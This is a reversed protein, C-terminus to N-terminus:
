KKEDLVSKLTQPQEIMHESQSQNEQKTSNCAALALLCPLLLNIRM